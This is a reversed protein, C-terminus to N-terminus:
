NKIKPDTVAGDMRQPQPATVARYIPMFDRHYPSTPSLLAPLAMKNADGPLFSRSMHWVWRMGPVRRAATKFQPHRSSGNQQYHSAWKYSLGHALYSWFSQKVVANAEDM